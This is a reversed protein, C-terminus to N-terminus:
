GVPGTHNIARFVCKWARWGTVYRTKATQSGTRQSQDQLCDFQIQPIGSLNLVYGLSPTILRLTHWYLVVHM